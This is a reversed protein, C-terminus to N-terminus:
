TSLIRSGVTLSVNYLVDWNLAKMGNPRDGYTDLLKDAEASESQHYVVLNSKSNCILGHFHFSVLLSFSLHQYCDFAIM